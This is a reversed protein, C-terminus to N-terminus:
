FSIRILPKKRYLKIRERKKECVCVCVCVAYESVSENMHASGYALRYKSDRIQM